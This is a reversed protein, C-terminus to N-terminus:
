PCRKGQLKDRAAELQESVVQTYRATQRIDRHGLWQQIVRIDVGAKGLRTGCTHRLAHIKYGQGAPWGFKIRMRDWALRVKNYSLHDFPVEKHKYKLFVDYARDTLPLILDDGNKTDKFHITRKNLDVQSSKIEITKTFRSGVDALVILLEIIDSRNNNFFYEHIKSETETDFWQHHEKTAKKLKLEKWNIVNVKIGWVESARQMCQQIIGLKQNITSRANDKLKHQTWNNLEQTTVAKLELCGIPDNVLSKVNPIYFTNYSKHTSWLEDTAKILCTSLTIGVIQKREENIAKIYTGALLELRVKAEITLAKQKSETKTSGRFRNVTYGHQEKIRTTIKIDYWWFSSNKKKYISM